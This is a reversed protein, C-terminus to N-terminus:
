NFVKNHENFNNFVEPKINELLREEDVKIWKIREDRGFWSIQRKAFRRTNRQFLRVMEDYDIEGRLYELYLAHFELIEATVADDDALNGGRFSEGKM